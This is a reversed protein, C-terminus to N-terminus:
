AVPQRQVYEWFATEFDKFADGGDPPGPPPEDGDDGGGDEDEPRARVLAIVGAAFALAVGAAALALLALGSVALVAAVGAPVTCVPIGASALHRRRCVTEARLPEDVMAALFLVLGVAAVTSAAGVAWLSSM